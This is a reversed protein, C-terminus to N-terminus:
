ITLIDPNNRQSHSRLGPLLWRGTTSGTNEWLLRFNGLTVHTTRDGKGGATSLRCIFRRFRANGSAMASQESGFKYEITHTDYDGQRSRDNSGWRQITGDEKVFEIGANILYIGHGATSDQKFDISFGTIFKMPIYRGYDGSNQEFNGWHDKGNNGGIKYSQSNHLKGGLSSIGWSTDRTWQKANGYHMWINENRSVLAGNHWNIAESSQGRTNRPPASDYVKM